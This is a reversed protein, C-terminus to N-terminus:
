TDSGMHIMPVMAALLDTTIRYSSISYATARLAKLMPFVGM